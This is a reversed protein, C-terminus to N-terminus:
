VRQFIEVNDSYQLSELAELGGRKAFEERMSESQNNNQFPRPLSIQNVNPKIKNLSPTTFILELLDLSNRVLDLTASTTGANLNLSVIELM